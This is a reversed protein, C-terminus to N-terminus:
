LPQVVLLYTVYAIYSLLLVTGQWRSAKGKILLPLVAIITMFFLVPIAIFVTERSVPLSDGKIDGIIGCVGLLLTCNIVNAGIVNGVALGGSKCRISTIATTLEPLSTGIAIITFGVVTESVKFMNALQEGYKVLAFAGVCLIAQGFIFGGFIKLWEKRYFEKSQLKKIECRTKKDERVNSLLFFAFACLLIIGEYWSIQLNMAFLFVVATILLLFITKFLVEGRKISNPMFALPIALVLAINVIMSGVANGVAIGHNGAAVAFISVFVEPLTTAVSVFTAGIIIQNIGTVKNLSLAARVLIDGGKIIFFLGCVFMVLAVGLAM